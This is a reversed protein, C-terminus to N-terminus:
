TIHTKLGRQSTAQFGCDGCQLGIPKDLVAATEAREAPSLYRDIPEVRPQRTDAVLEASGFTERQAQVERSLEPDDLHDDHLFGLRILQAWKGPIKSVKPFDRTDFEAGVPLWRGSLLLESRGQSSAAPSPRKVKLVAM